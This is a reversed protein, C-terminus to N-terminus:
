PRPTLSCQSLVLAAAAVRPTAMSTGSIFAHANNPTTSLVSVGPAGLHVSLHGYNSVDRHPRQQRDGCRCDHERHQLQRSLFAHCRRESRRRVCQRQRLQWSCCTKLVLRTSKMLLSQSFGGAGNNSLVRM